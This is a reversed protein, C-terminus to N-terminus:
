DGSAGGTLQLFVNELSHTRNILESVFMGKEALAQNVAAGRDPPVDIM